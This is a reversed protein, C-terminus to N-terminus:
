YQSADIDRIALEIGEMNQKLSAWNINLDLLKATLVTNFVTSFGPSWNDVAVHVGHQKLLLDRENIKDWPWPAQSNLSARAMHEINAPSCLLDHPLFEASTQYQTGEHLFGVQHARNLEYSLRFDESIMLRLAWEADDPLQNQTRHKM